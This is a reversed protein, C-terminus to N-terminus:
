SFVAYPSRWICGLPPVRHGLTHRQTQRHTHTHTDMVTDEWRLLSIQSIFRTPLLDMTIDEMRGGVGDEEGAENASSVLQSDDGEYIDDYSEQSVKIHLSYIYMAIGGGGGGWM